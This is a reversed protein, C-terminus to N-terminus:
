DREIDADRCGRCKTYWEGMKRGSYRKSSMPVIYQKIPYDIWCHPCLILEPGRKAEPTARLEIMQFKM